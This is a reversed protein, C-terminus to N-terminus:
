AKAVRERADTQKEKSTMGKGHTAQEAAFVANMVGALGPMGLEVAHQLTTLGRQVWRKGFRKNLWGVLNDIRDEIAEPLFPSKKAGAGTKLYTYLAITGGFVALGLLAKVPIRM